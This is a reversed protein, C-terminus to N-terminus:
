FPLQKIKDDIAELYTNRGKTAGMIRLDKIVKEYNDFDEVDVLDSNQDWVKEFLEAYIMLTEKKTM